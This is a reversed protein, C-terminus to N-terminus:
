KIKTFEVFCIVAHSTDRHERSLADIENLYYEPVRTTQECLARPYFNLLGALGQYLSIESGM